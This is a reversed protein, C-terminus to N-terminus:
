PQTFQTAAVTSAFNGGSPLLLSVYYVTGAALAEAPTAQATGEPLDGYTVPGVLTAETTVTGISWETPGRLVGRNVMLAVVGCRPSWAFTPPTGPTVTITTGFGCTPIQDTTTPDSCGAIFLPGSFLLLSRLSHGLM